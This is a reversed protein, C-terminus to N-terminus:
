GVLFVTAPLRATVDRRAARVALPHNAPLVVVDSGDEVIADRMAVHPSESPLARLRVPGAERELESVLVPEHREPALWISLGHGAAIRRAVILAREAGEGEGLLVQVPGPKRPARAELAPARGGWAVVVLDGRSLREELVAEPRSRAVGFVARGAEHLFRERAEDGLVRWRKQLDSSDFAAPPPVSDRVDRGFPSGALGLLSEDEVFVGELEASLRDAVRLAQRAVRPTGDSQDLLVVVTKVRASM